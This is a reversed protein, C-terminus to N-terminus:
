KLFKGLTLVRLFKKTGAFIKKCFIGQHSSLVLFFMSHVLTGELKEFDTHVDFNRKHLMKGPSMQTQFLTYSIHAFVNKSPVNIHARLKRTHARRVAKTCACM